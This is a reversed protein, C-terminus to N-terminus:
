DSLVVYKIVIMCIFVVWFLFGIICTYNFSIQKKNKEANTIFFSNKRWGRRSSKNFRESSYKRLTFILILIKGTYYSVIYVLVEVIFSFLIELM